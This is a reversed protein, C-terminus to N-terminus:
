KGEESQTVDSRARSLTHTFGWCQLSSRLLPLHPISPIQRPRILLSVPPLQSFARLIEVEGGATLVWMIDVECGQKGSGVHVEVDM